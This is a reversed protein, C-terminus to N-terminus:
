DESIELQNMRNRYYDELKHRAIGLVWSRLSAEARFKPLAQWAAFMIEQVLDEVVEARPVLRRRIFPYLWDACRSVFEATAKRDKALVGAVLDRDEPPSTQRSGGAKRVTQAPHEAEM